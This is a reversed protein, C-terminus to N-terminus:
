FLAILDELSDVQSTTILQEQKNYFRVFYHNLLTVTFDQGKFSFLQNGDFSYYNFERKSELNIVSNYKM